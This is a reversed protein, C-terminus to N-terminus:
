EYIWIRDLRMRGNFVGRLQVTVQSRRSQAAMLTSYLTKGYDPNDVIPYVGSDFITVGAIGADSPANAAMPTDFYLIIRGDSNVYLMRVRGFYQCYQDGGNNVCTPADALATETSLLGLAAVLPVVLSNRFRLAM